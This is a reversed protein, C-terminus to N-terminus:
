CQPNRKKQTTNLLQARNQNPSYGTWAHFARIFSNTEKYGLLFAIDLDSFNTKSLYHLALEHRLSSLVAQFSTGEQRLQRQLTRASLALVSAVDTISCSGSALVGSLCSRVRQSLKDAQKLANLHLNLEPEFMEWIAENASMFPQNADNASFVIRNFEARQIPVGLFDEYVSQSPLDYSCYVSLPQIQERTALRAIQVLFAFELAIISAPCPGLEPLPEITVSSMSPDHNLVFQIPAVLDKYHALRGLALKLNPSCFCAFIPPSFSEVTVARAVDLPFTPSDSLTELAAWFQFYEEPTLSPRKRSFFDQPLNTLKLVDQPAIKLDKFLIQLSKDLYYVRKKM